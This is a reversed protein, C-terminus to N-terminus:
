LQQQLWMFQGPHLLPSGISARCEGTPCRHLGACVRDPGEEAGGGFWRRLCCTGVRSGSSRSYGSSGGSRGSGSCRGAPVWFFRCNLGQRAGRGSGVRGRPPLGPAGQGPPCPRHRRRCPSHGHTQLSRPLPSLHPMPRLLTCPCGLRALRGATPFPLTLLFPPLPTM